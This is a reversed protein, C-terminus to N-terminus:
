GPGMRFRCADSGEPSACEVEVKAALLRALMHKESDCLGNYKSALCSIPCNHMVLEVKGNGTRRAEAMYGDADRATALRKTREYLSGEGIVRSYEEFSRANARNFVEEVGETGLKMQVYELAAALMKSYGQPYVGRSRASPRFVLRPRGVGIRRVQHELLGRAELEKVHKYVAMQSISLKKSLGELDSQGERKLLQMIKYKISSFIQVEPDMGPAEMVAHESKQRVSSM